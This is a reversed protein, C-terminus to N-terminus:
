QVCRASVLMTEPMENEKDNNKVSIEVHLGIIQSSEFTDLNLGASEILPILPSDSDVEASFIKSFVCGTEEIKLNMKFLENGKKSTFFQAATILAKYDGDPLNNVIRTFGM